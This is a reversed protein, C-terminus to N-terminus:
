DYIYIHAKNYRYIFKAQRDTQRNTQKDTQKYARHIKNKCIFYFIPAFRGLLRSLLARLAM